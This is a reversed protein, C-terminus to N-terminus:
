PRDVAEGEAAADPASVVAAREDSGGPATTPELPEGAPDGAAAPEGGDVPIEQEALLRRMENGSLEATLEADGADAETQGGSPSKWQDSPELRETM